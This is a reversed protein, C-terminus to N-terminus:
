QNFDGDLDLDGKIDVDGNVNLNEQVNVNGKVDLNGEVFLDSNEDIAVNEKFYSEGLVALNGDLFLSADNSRSPRSSGQTDDGIFVNAAFLAETGVVFTRDTDIITNVDGEVRFTTADDGNGLITVDNVFTVPNSFVCQGAAANFTAECGQQLRREEHLSKIASAQETVMQELAALRRMVADNSASGSRINSSSTADASPTFFLGASLITAIASTKTFMMTATQKNLKNNYYYSNKTTQKKIKHSSHDHDLPGFTALISIRDISPLM